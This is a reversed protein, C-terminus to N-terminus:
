ERPKAGSAVTEFDLAEFLAWSYHNLNDINRTAFYIDLLGDYTSEFTFICEGCEDGLLLVWNTNAPFIGGSRAGGAWMRSLKSGLSHTAQPQSSPNAWIAFETPAADPHALKCRARISRVGAARVGSVKAVNPTRGKPHVLLARRQDDWHIDDSNSGAGALPTALQLIEIGRASRQNEDAVGVGFGPGEPPLAIGVIGSWVRVAFPRGGAPNAYLANRFAEGVSKGEVLAITESQTEPVCIIRVPEGIPTQFVDCYFRNWGSQIADERVRWRQLVRETHRGLLVISIAGGCIAAPKEFYLDIAHIADPEVNLEVSKEAALSLLGSEPLIQFIVRSVEAPTVFNALQLLASQSKEYLIRLRALEIGMSAYQEGQRDLWRTIREVVWRVLEQNSQDYVLLGDSLFDAYGVQELWKLLLQESTRSNPGCIIGLPIMSVSAQSST